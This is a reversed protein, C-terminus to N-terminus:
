LRRKRPTTTPPDEDTRSASTGERAAKLIELQELARLRAERQRPSEGLESRVRAAKELAERAEALPDDERRRPPPAEVEEFEVGRAEAARRLAERAEALLDSEIPDDNEGAM